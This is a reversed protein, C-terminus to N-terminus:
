LRGTSAFGGGCKKNMVPRKLGLARVVAEACAMTSKYDERGVTDSREAAVNCLFLSLFWQSGGLVGIEQKTTAGRSTYGLEYTTGVYVESRGRDTVGLIISLLYSTVVGRRRQFARHSRPELYSLVVKWGSGSRIGAACM